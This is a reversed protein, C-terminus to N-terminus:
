WSTFWTASPDPLFEGHVCTKSWRDRMAVDAVPPTCSCSLADSSVDCMLHSVSCVVASAKSQYGGGGDVKLEVALLTGLALM